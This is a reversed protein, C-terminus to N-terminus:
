QVIGRRHSSEGDGVSQQDRLTASLIARLEPLCSGCNTGARLQRGIQQLSSLGFEHIAACITNRGVGFCSCIM